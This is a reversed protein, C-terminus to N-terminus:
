SPMHKRLESTDFYTTLSQIMGERIDYWESVELPLTSGDPTHVTTIIRTIVYHDKEVAELLESDKISDFFPKNIAIFTEKGEIEALPGKLKVDDALMSQWANDNALMSKRFAHYTDIPSQNM